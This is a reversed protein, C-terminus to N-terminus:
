FDNLRIFSTISRDIKHLNGDFEILVKGDVDDLGKLIGELDNKGEFPKIFNIKIKKGVFKIFDSDRKLLRDLGPSSVELYYSYEIPDTEDLKTSLMRSVDACDDINIGGDKDIYIRLYWEEDEKILEVAVLECQFHEVIPLAIDFISNELKEQDKGM